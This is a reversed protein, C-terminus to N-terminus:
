RPIFVASNKINERVEIKTIWARNKTEEKIVPNMEQYVFEATGEMSTNKFIRLQILCKKDMEKFLDLEPDDKSVLFTHDFMYDLWDKIRKLGGFDM